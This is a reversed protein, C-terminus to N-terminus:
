RNNIVEFGHCFLEFCNWTSPVKVPYVFYCVSYAAHRTVCFSLDVLCYVKTSDFVTTPRPPREDIMLRDAVMVLFLGVPQNTVFPWSIIIPNSRDFQVTGKERQYDVASSSPFIMFALGSYFFLAAVLTQV